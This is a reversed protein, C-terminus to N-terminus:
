AKRLKEIAQKHDKSAKSFISNFNKIIEPAKSFQETILFRKTGDKLLVQTDGIICSDFSEETFRIDLGNYTLLVEWQKLVSEIEKRNLKRLESVLYPMSFLYKTKAKGNKARSLLNKYYDERGKGKQESPLLLAPSKTAFKADKSKKAMDAAQKYFEFEDIQM